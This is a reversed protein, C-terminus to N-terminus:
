MEAQEALYEAVPIQFEEPLSEIERRGAKVLLGYVPIMYQKTM